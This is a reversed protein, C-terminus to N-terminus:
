ASSCEGCTWKKSDSLPGEYEYCTKCHGGPIISNCIGEVDTVLGSDVCQGNYLHANPTACKLCWEDTNDKGNM